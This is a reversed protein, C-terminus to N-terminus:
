QGRGVGARHQPGAVRQRHGGSLQSPRRDAHAGLQVMELAEQSRRRREAKPVKKVMLGYAVNDAVSLHPFLAYDQFVTNVDREFPAADTVDRGHLLVRGSTPTEFGAILRLCTTKGSGSPGLMSFFEGNAIELDIGDVAVVSGFEKRLGRLRIAPTADVGDPRSTQTM